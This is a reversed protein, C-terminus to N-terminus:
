RSLIVSPCSRPPPSLGTASVSSRSLCKQVNECHDLHSAPHHHSSHSPPISHTDACTSDNPSPLLSSAALHHAARPLQTGGATNGQHGACHRAGKASPPPNQHSKPYTMKQSPLNQDTLSCLPFFLTPGPSSPSFYSSQPPPLLNLNQQLKLYSVNM